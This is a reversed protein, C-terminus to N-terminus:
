LHYENPFVQVVCDMLYYQALDDKCNVVQELVRPLVTEKYIELDVGEIWLKNMETFNELIFEVVNMVIDAEM